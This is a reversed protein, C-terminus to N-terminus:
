FITHSKIYCGQVEQLWNELERLTLDNDVVFCKCGRAEHEEFLIQQRLTPEKGYIKAEVMFAVAILTGDALKCTRYCHYDLGAAGMGMQVPMFYYCRHKKLLANIKAKVKGEPTTM